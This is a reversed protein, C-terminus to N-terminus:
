KLIRMVKRTKQGMQKTYTKFMFLAIKRNLLWSNENIKSKFGNFLYCWLESNCVDKIIQRKHSWTLQNSAILRRFCHKYDNMFDDCLIKKLIEHQAQPVFTLISKIKIELGQIANPHFRATLSDGTSVTYIYLQDPILIVEKINVFYDLNFVLDEGLSMEENFYNTIKEKIYLKNWPPNYYTSRYIWFFNDIMEKYSYRKKECSVRLRNDSSHYGCIAADAGTDEISFVLVETMNPEIADDSDVFQVYYGTAVKLGANRASSVGGNKKNVVLIREDENAYAEMKALTNDTSGDNILVIEIEKYTQVILSCICKDIYKEANFAPVIISVKRGM